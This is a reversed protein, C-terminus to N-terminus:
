RDPQPPDEPIPVFELPVALRVKVAAGGSRAPRFRMREATRLAVSDFAAHEAPHLIAASQVRGDEAVVVGVTVRGVALSERLAPPHNRGLARALDAANLMEPFSDVRALEPGRAPAAPRPGPTGGLVARVARAFGTEEGAEMAHLRLRVSDRLAPGTSLSPRRDAHLPSVEWRPTACSRLTDGPAWRTSSRCPPALALALLQDALPGGRGPRLYPRLALLAHLRVRLPRRSDEAARLMARLLAANGGSWESERVLVAASDGSVTAWRAALSDARPNQGHGPCPSFALLLLAGALALHPHRMPM